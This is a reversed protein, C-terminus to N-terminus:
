RRLSNHRDNTMLTKLVANLVALPSQKMLDQLNLTPNSEHLLNVGRVPNFAGLVELLNTLDVPYNATQRLNEAKRLDKEVAQSVLTRVQLWALEPSVSGLAQKAEPDLSFNQDPSPLPAFSSM